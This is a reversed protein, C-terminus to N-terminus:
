NTGLAEEINLKEPRDESADQAVRVAPTSLKRFEAEVDDVRRSLKNWRQSAIEGERKRSMSVVFLAIWPCFM